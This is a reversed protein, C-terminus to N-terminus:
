SRVGYRLHVVGNAFARESVLDVGLRIGDPLAKKGGGLVVPSVFFHLEDVLGAALAQGAIDPGGILLDRDASAKLRGIAEPDFSREIRTRESSVSQLSTSYVAKDADRWITAFDREVASEDTLDFTEWSVMVEYLRRGYLHTGISRMLDNIVAHGDEDPVGWNFDGDADTVYGDLSTIMSYILKAM